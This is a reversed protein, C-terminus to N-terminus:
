YGLKKRVRKLVTNATIGERKGGFELAQDIEELNNMYYAYRKRQESFTNCILEFLSQKEHGAKGDLLRWITKIKKM